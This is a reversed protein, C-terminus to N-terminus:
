TPEHHPPREDLYRRDSRASSEPREAASEPASGRGALDLDMLARPPRKSARKSPRAKPRTAGESREDRQETM